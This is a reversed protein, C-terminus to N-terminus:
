LQFTLIEQRYELTKPSRHNHTEPKKTLEWAGDLPLPDGNLDKIKVTLNENKSGHITNVLQSDPSLFEKHLFEKITGGGISSFSAVYLPTEVITTEEPHQQKKIHKTDTKLQAVKLSGDAVKEAGLNQEPTPNKQFDSEPSQPGFTEM